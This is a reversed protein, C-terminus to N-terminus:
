GNKIDETNAVAVTSTGGLIGGFCNGTTSCGAVGGWGMDNKHDGGCFVYNDSSNANNCWIHTKMCNYDGCYPCKVPPSVTVPHWVSPVSVPPYIPMDVPLEELAKLLKCLEDVNECEVAIKTGNAREITVKM